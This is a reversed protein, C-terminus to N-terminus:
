DVESYRIFVRDVDTTSLTGLTGEWRWALYGPQSLHFGVHYSGLALRTVSGVTGYVWQTGPPTHWQFAFTVTSPDIFKNGKSDHFTGVIAIYDGLDYIPTGVSHAM